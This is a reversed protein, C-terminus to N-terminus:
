TYVVIGCPPQAGATISSSIEGPAGTVEGTDAPSGSGSLKPEERRMVAKLEPPPLLNEKPLLGQPNCTSTRLGFRSGQHPTSARSSKFDTRM